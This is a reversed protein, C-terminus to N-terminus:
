KTDSLLDKLFADLEKDMDKWLEDDLKLTDDDLFLLEEVVDFNENVLSASFPKEICIKNFANKENLLHMIKKLIPIIKSYFGEEDLEPLVWDFIVEKGFPKENEDFITVEGNQQDVQFFLDNLSNGAHDEELRKLTQITLDRIIEIYKGSDM